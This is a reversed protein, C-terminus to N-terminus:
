PLFPSTRCRRSSSAALSSPLRLRLPRYPARMGRFCSCATAMAPRAHHRPCAHGRCSRLSGRPQSARKRASPAVYPPGNRVRRCGHRGARPGTNAKGPNGGPLQAEHVVDAVEADDGVDIVALRRKRIPQDLRAPRHLRPLEAVLHEVVHVDLALAADGDLAVRYAEVVPRPVALEMLEVEDVGGTVDVEGMLDPTREHGALARQHHDVGRLPHLRLRDGVEVERELVVELEQRDDVLDVQGRRVHLPHALLDVLVEAEIGEVCDRNGGLLSQADVLHQFADDGMQRRRAALSFRRELRQHEVGAVIGVAPHHEVHAHHVPAQCAAVAHAEHVGSALVLHVFHTQVAQAALFGASEVCARDAVHDGADLRDTVDADAIGQGVGAFGRVSGQRAVLGRARHHEGGDVRHRAPLVPVQADCHLLEGEVVGREDVLLVGRGRQAEAKAATKEAQEVQVHHLLPEPALEVQRQDEGGGGHQVPHLETVPLLDIDVVGGVPRLRAGDVRHLLGVDPSGDEQGFLVEAGGHLKAALM